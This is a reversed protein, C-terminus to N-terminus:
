MRHLVSFVIEDWGDSTPLDNDVPIVRTMRYPQLESVRPGGSDEDPMFLSTRLQRHHRIWLNTYKSWVDSDTPTFDGDAHLLADSM